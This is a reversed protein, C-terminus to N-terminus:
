FRFVLETDRRLNEIEFFLDELEFSRLLSLENLIAFYKLVRVHLTNSTVSSLNM